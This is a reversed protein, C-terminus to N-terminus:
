NRTLHSSSFIQNKTKRVQLCPDLAPDNKTTPCEPNYYALNDDFRLGRMLLAKALRRKQEVLDPEPSPIPLVFRINDFKNKDNANKPHHEPPAKQERKDVRKTNVFFQNVKEDSKVFDTYVNEL